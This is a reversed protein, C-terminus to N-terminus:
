LMSFKVPLSVEFPVKKGDCEGPTWETLFDLVKIAEKDANCPEKDSIGRVIKKNTIQGTPEVVFSVFVVGEFCCLGGSSKLNKKITKTLNELGGKYTPMKESMFYYTRGRLSDYKTACGQGFGKTTVLIIILALCLEKGVM